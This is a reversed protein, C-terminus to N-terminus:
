LHKITGWKPDKRLDNHSFPRVVLTYVGDYKRQSMKHILNKKLDETASVGNEVRAASKRAVLFAHDPLAPVKVGLAAKAPYGMSIVGRQSFGRFTAEFGQFAVPQDFAVSRAAPDRM